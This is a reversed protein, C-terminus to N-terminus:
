TSSSLYTTFTQTRDSRPLKCKVNRPDCSIIQPEKRYQIAQKGSQILPLGRPKPVDAQVIFKGHTRDHRRTRPTHYPRHNQVDERSDFKLEPKFPCDDSRTAIALVTCLLIRRQETERAEGEWAPKSDAIIRTAGQFLVACGSDRAPSPSSTGTAASQM